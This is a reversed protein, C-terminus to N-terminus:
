SDLLATTSRRGPDAAFSRNRVCMSKGDGDDAYAPREAAALPIHVFGREDLWGGVVGRRAWRETDARFAKFESEFAMVGPGIFPPSHIFRWHAHFLRLYLDHARFFGTADDPDPSMAFAVPHLAGTKALGIVHDCM